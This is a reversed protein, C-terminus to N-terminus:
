MLLLFFVLIYKTVKLKGGCDTFEEDSPELEIERDTYSVYLHLLYLLSHGTLVLQLLFFDHVSKSSNNVLVALLPQSLNLYLDLIYKYISVM